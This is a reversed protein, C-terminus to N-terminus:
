VNVFRRDISLYTQNGLGEITVDSDAFFQPKYTKGDLMKFTRAKMLHRNNTSSTGENNDQLERVSDDTNQFRFALVDGDPPDAVSVALAVHYFGDEPPNFQNNSLSYESGNDAEETDFDIDEWGNANAYLQDSTMEVEVLTESEIDINETTFSQASLYGDVSAAPASLGLADNASIWQGGDGVFVDGTQSHELIRGNTPNYEAPLGVEVDDAVARLLAALGVNGNQVSVSNPQEDGM